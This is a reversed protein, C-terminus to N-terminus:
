REQNNKQKPLERDRFTHAARILKDMTDKNMGEIDAPSMFEEAASRVTDADDDIDVLEQYCRDQLCEFFQGTNGNCEKEAELVLDFTVCNFVFQGGATSDPNYYIEYVEGREPFVWFADRTQDIGNLVDQVEKEIPLVHFFDEGPILGLSRGNDFICHVTGIDDVEQVTGNMGPSIPRPDDGMRDVQIRTGVPYMARIRKVEKESPFM